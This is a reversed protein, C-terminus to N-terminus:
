PDKEKEFGNEKEFVSFKFYMRCIRQGIKSLDKFYM